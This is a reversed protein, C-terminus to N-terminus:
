ELEVGGEPMTKPKADSGLPNGDVGGPKTIQRTHVDKQEGKAVRNNKWRQQKEDSHVCVM